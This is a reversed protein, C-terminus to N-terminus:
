FGPACFQELGEKCYECEKCSDVICGVGVLDGTKFKKVQTGVATIKGVIEHGPVVPYVTGHWENRATHLDSHCVGCFLIEIEIDQATVKRRNITLGDLAADAAKTGYAKVTKTELKLGSLTTATESNKTKLNETEMILDS